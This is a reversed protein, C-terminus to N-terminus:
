SLDSDTDRTIPFTLDIINLDISQTIYPLLDQSIVSAVGFVVRFFFGSDVSNDKKVLLM